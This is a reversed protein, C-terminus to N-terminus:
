EPFLLKRLANLGEARMTRESFLVDLALFFPVSPSAREERLEEAAFHIADFIAGAALASTALSEPLEASEWRHAHNNWEEVQRPAHKREPTPPLPEPLHWVRALASPRARILEVIAGICAACCAAKPPLRSSEIGVPSAEGSEIRRECVACVPRRSGTSFADQRWADSMWIAL